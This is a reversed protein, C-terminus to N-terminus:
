PRVHDALESRSTVGLKAFARYLHNEVTRLSVVLREAIERNALGDAALAAVEAERFTLLPTGADPEELLAALPPSALARETVLAGLAPRLDRRRRPELAVTLARAEAAWGEAGFADFALAAEDLGGVDNAEAARAFARRAETVPSGGPWRELVAVALDPRGFRVLDHGAAAALACV